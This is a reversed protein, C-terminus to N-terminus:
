VRLKLGLDSWLANAQPFRALMQQVKATCRLSAHFHAM